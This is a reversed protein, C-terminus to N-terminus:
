AFYGMNLCWTRWMERYTAEVARAYGPGDGVPSRAMRSPLDQRLKALADLDTARAAALAIYASRDEAIFDTLGLAALCAPALRSSITEAPAAIVPVGMALAELTTM